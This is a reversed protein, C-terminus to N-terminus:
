NYGPNQLFETSTRDIQNQPIPRLIHYDKINPGGEPNFAKVRELLKGTRTLDFWRKMEGLLERSREDLIFDINLAAPTVEMALRNADTEAQTKGVAAARRRIQNIYVVAEAPRNDMMLAEAAILMTEALRFLLFDRSGRLEPVSARTPDLHKTVTPFVRDTQKNLQYVSYKAAALKAASWQEDVIYLATDGAKLTMQGGQIKTFTGPSNCYFVRKFTKTYRSDLKKDFLTTLVRDTPRFRAYPRGNQLDRVVGPLDDYKMIWYVHLTNGLEATLFNSSNQVSFVVESHREAAEGQAFVQAFDDLLKFNYNKIVAEANEAAKKYDDAKAASGGARTLHVLALLHQAAPKTARGYNAGTATNPLVAIAENLDTVILDYVENIPSRKAETVVGKTETTTIHVPGWLQVLLHYYVARLFKVEAIRTNKIAPDIGEINPARNIAANCANIGAYLRNWVGDLAGARSNLNGNYLNFHKNGGDFGMRFEDTGFTTMSPIGENETYVRLFSYAGNVNDNFGAPTNLYSDFAQTRADEYLFKDDCSAFVAALLIISLIKKM